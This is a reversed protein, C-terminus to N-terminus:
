NKRRLRKLKRKRVVYVVSALIIIVLIVFGAMLGIYLFIKNSGPGEGSQIITGNFQRTFSIETDTKYKCIYVINKINSDTGNFLNYKFIIHKDDKVFYERAKSDSNRFMSKGNIIIEMDDYIGYNKVKSDCKIVVKNINEWIEDKIFAKDDSPLIYIKSLNEILNHDNHLSGGFASQFICKYLGFNELNKSLRLNTITTPNGSSDESIFHTKFTKDYFNDINFKQTKFTPVIKCYINFTRDLLTKNVYLTKSNLFKENKKLILEEGNDTFLKMEASLPPVNKVCSVDTIPPYHNSTEHRYPFNYGDKSLKDLTQSSSPYIYIIDGHYISPKKNSQLNIYNMEINDKNIDNYTFHFYDKESNTSLCVINENINGITGVSIDTSDYKKDLKFGVKLKTEDVYEIEGFIFNGEYKTQPYIPALIHRKRFSAYEIGSTVFPHFKAEDSTLMVYLVMAFDTVKKNVIDQGKESNHYFILGIECFSLHCSAHQSEKLYVNKEYNLIITQIPSPQYKDFLLGHEEPNHDTVDIKIIPVNRLIIYDLAKIDKNHRSNSAYTKSNSM